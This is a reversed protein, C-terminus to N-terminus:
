MINSYATTAATSESISAFNLHNQKWRWATPIVVFLPRCQSAAAAAAAAVVPEEVCRLNSSAPTAPLQVTVPCVGDHDEQPLFSPIAGWIVFINM